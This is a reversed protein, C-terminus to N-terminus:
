VCMFRISGDRLIDPWSCAEDHGNAGSRKKWITHFIDKAVSAHVLATTRACFEFWTSFYSQLDPTIAECAAIFAPWILAASNSDDHYGEEQKAKILCMRMEDVQGQLMRSDIEYIRRHFFILLANYMAQATATVKTALGEINGRPHTGLSPSLLHEIARELAKARTWFEKLSLHRDAPDNSIMSLDRENALRIVQSLLMLFIEDVGYVTPFLTSSWYGPIALHLDRQAMEPDKEMLMATTSFEQNPYIRFEGGYLSPINDHPSLNTETLNANLDGMICTTEAMIRMYAYCHHLARKKASLIPQSLGKVCIFKETQVLWARRKEPDGKIMFANSLSLIAMLIEKYKSTKSSSLCTEEMCKQFHSQAQLLYREGSAKWQDFCGTSNNGLHFASTSWVANLLALRAHNVRGSLTLEGLTTVACPIVLNMWPTEQGRRLPSILPIIREKYHSLLTWGEINGGSLFSRPDPEQSLGGLYIGTNEPFIMDLEPIMDPFLEAELTDLPWLSCNIDDDRPIHELQELWEEPSTPTEEEDSGPSEDPPPQSWRFAGFPGRVHSFPKSDNYHDNENELEDIVRSPSQDHLSSVVKLSMERREADTFISQRLRAANGASLWRIDEKNNIFTLHITASTQPLRLSESVEPTPHQNNRSDMQPPFHLLGPRDKM